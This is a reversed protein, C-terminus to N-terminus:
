QNVSIIISGRLLMDALAPYDASVLKLVDAVTAPNGAIELDSRGAKEKLLAFLKVTIM